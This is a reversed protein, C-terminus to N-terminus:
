ANMVGMARANPVSYIRGVVPTARLRLWSWFVDQQRYEQVQIQGEHGVDRRRPLPLGWVISVSWDKRSGTTQFPGENIATVRLKM